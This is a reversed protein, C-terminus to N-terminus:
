ERGLWVWRSVGGVVCVCWVVVKKELDWIVCAYRRHQVKLTVRLILFTTVCVYVHDTEMQPTLKMPVVQFFPFTFSGNM